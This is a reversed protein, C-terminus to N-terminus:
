RAWPRRSSAPRSSRTPASQLRAMTVTGKLGDLSWTAKEERLFRGRSDFSRATLKVTQGPELVLETPSVQVHTAAGEGAAAPEDGGM